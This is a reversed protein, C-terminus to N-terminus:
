TTYLKAYRFRSIVHGSSKWRLEAIEDRLAYPILLAIVQDLLTKYFQLSTNACKLGTQLSFNTYFLYL